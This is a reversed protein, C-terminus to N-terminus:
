KSVEVMARAKRMLELAEGCGPDLALADNLELVAEYYRGERMMLDARGAQWRAKEQAPSLHPTIDVPKGFKYALSFRHAAGFKGYSSLAYDFQLMKITVGGGFRLGSGLDTGSVYGARLAVIRRLVYEAGSSLVSGSNNPKNLDLTFTLPDGAALLIYSAGARVQAPAPDTASDFKFGGGLSQASIGLGLTGDRVASVWLFGADILATGASVTDLTERAYKVAGGAFIGIRKDRWPGRLRAAYNVAVALDGADVDGAAAGSNNFGQISPMNLMSISGGLVGNEGGLPHAYVAQQLSIGELWSNYSFAAERYGTRALAAPNMAVAGLLDGYLGAGTEGMAVARPSQIIRLFEGGSKGAGARAPAAACCCLAACIIFKLATFNKM